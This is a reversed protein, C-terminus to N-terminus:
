LMFQAARQRLMFEPASNGKQKGEGGLETTILWNMAVDLNNTGKWVLDQKVKLDWAWFLSAAPLLFDVSFFVDVGWSIMEQSMTFLAYLLFCAQPQSGATVRMCVGSASVARGQHADARPAGRSMEGLWARGWAHICGSLSSFM